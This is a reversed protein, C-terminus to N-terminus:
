RAAILVIIATGLAILIYTIQLNTLAGAAFDKQYKDSESALRALEQDSLTSVAKRVRVPNLHASKLAREARPTSFVTRVKAVNEQRIQAQTAVAQRLQTTSVVHDPAAALALGSVWLGLALIMFMSLIRHVLIRM